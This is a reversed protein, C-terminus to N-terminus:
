ARIAEGRLATRTRADLEGSVPLRKVDQYKRLAERTQEHLDGTAPGPDFGASELQEQAERITDPDLTADEGDPSVATQGLNLPVGWASLLRSDAAAAGMGRAAAAAPVLAVALALAVGLMMTKM